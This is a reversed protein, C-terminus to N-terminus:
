LQLSCVCVCVHLLVGRTKPPSTPTRSSFTSWSMSVITALLLTSLLPSGVRCTGVISTGRPVCDRSLSPPLSHPVFCKSQLMTLTHTHTNPFTQLDVTLTLPLTPYMVKVVEIEGNKAAELLQSEIDSNSVAPREHLVKVM